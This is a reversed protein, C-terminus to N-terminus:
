ESRRRNSDTEAQIRRGWEAQLPRWGRMQLISEVGDHGGEVRAPRSITMVDAAVDLAQWAAQLGAYAGLRQGEDSVYTTWHRLLAVYANGMQPYIRGAVFGLLQQESDEAVLIVANANSLASACATEAGSRQLDGTMPHRVDAIASLADARVWLEILQKLDAEVARRIQM